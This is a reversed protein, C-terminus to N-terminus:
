VVVYRKSLRRSGEFHSFDDGDVTLAEGSANSVARETLVVRWLGDQQCIDRYDALGTALNGVGAPLHAIGYWVYMGYRAM